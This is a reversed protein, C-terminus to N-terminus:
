AADQYSVKRRERLDGHTGILFRVPFLEIHKALVQIQDKAWDFSEKSTTDYLVAVCTTSSPVATLSVYPAFEVAIQMSDFRFM